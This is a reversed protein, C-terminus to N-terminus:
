NKQIQWPWPVNICFINSWPHCNSKKLDNHLIHLSHMNFLQKSMSAYMKKSYGTKFHVWKLYLKVFEKKKKLIKKFIFKGYNSYHFIIPNEDQTKQNLSQGRLQRPFNRFNRYTSFYWRVMWRRMKGDCLGCWRRSIWSRRWKSTQLQVFRSVQLIFYFWYQLNNCVM